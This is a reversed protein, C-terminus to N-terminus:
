RKPASTEGAAQVPPRSPLRDLWCRYLWAGGLAALLAAYAWRRGPPGFVVTGNVVMFVAFGHVAWAVGAPRRAHGAPALWWWALDATWVLVFAYNVLIGAGTGGVERIREVAAAHSWGHGIGFAALLHLLLSLWAFTWAWRAPSPRRLLLWAWAAAMWVVTAAASGTVAPHRLDPPTAGRATAALLGTQALWLATLAPGATGNRTVTHTTTM